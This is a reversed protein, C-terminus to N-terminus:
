KANNGYWLRAFPRRLAAVIDAAYGYWGKVAAVSNLVNVIRHTFLDVQEFDDAYVEWIAREQIVGNEETRANKAPDIMELLDEIQPVGDAGALSSLGDQDIPVRVKVKPGVVVARGIIDPRSVFVTAAQVVDETLGMAGGALMVRVGVELIPTDIFYPCLMNVRVGHMIPATIRMCRFLGLVGHKSVSYPTQTVLPYLGAISGLLILHRDREYPPSTSSCPKSGPNRELYFLALHTTYLVGTLNVDLTRFRPPPPDPDNEYDVLPKEFAAADKSDNIGANAVVVDIGRHPSLRVAERFFDVQSKWSTVDLHIFHHNNNNNNNTERRVEAVLQEGASANIDGIIVNAGHSAWQKFFGAGFGSAGGTIVITKGRIFAPDIKLPSSLDLPPSQRASSSITYQPIDAGM